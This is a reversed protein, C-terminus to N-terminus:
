PTVTSLDTKLKEELEMMRARSMMAFALAGVLGMCLGTYWIARPTTHDSLFGAIPPAIGGAVTYAISYLSMYRARMDPPAIRAVLTLATPSLILEGTTMIVMSAAFAAMSSDLAVSGLGVAYFLGGVALVALPEHRKTVRTVFYQFLVVMTANVSIILGSQNELIGFNEKVYVPLLGFMLTATMEVLLYGLAFAMFARDRLVAGYGGFREAKAQAGRSPMSEAIFLFILLALIVNVLATIYYTLEYSIGILMGGIVPGFAIGLNAIMRVLAYAGARQEPLVLDAVMANGGVNFVPNIAGYVAILITWQPLTNAGSMALLVFSSAILSLVMIRKRGFRDMLMGVVSTAILGAAAQVSLLLTITALPANLQHRMFVTLFPWVLSAGSRNIFFGGFLLWFQPSYQQFQKRFSM